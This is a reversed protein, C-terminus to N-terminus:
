ISIYKCTYMENQNRFEEIKNKEEKMKKGRESGEEREM